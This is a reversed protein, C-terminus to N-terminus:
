NKNRETFIGFAGNFDLKIRCPAGYRNKVIVLDIEKLEGGGFDAIINDLAINDKNDKQKIESSLLMVVEPKYVIDVSGKVSTMEAKSWEAKNKHSVILFVAGTQENIKRFKRITKGEKEIQDRYEKTEIEFDQLQDIVM